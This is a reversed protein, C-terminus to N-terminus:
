KIVEFEFKVDSLVCSEPKSNNDFVLKVQANDTNKLAGKLTFTKTYSFHSGPSNQSDVIGEDLVCNTQWSANDNMNVLQISAWELPIDSKGSFTVKLKTGAPLTKTYGLIYPPIYYEFSSDTKNWYTRNIKLRDFSFSNKYGPKVKTIVENVNLSIIKGTIKFENITLREDCYNNDYYFGCWWKSTNKVTDKLVVRIKDNFPVGAKFGVGCLKRWSFDVSDKGDESFIRFAHVPVDKDPVGSIEFEIVSGKPIFKNKGFIQELLFLYEYNCSVGREDTRGWDMRKVIVYSNEWVGSEDKQISVPEPEPRPVPKPKPVFVSTESDDEDVKVVLMEGSKVTTSNKEKANRSATIDSVEVEGSLVEITAESAPKGEEGHKPLLILMDTKQVSSIEKTGVKVVTDDNASVKSLFLEGNIFDVSKENKNNFIQILSNERLQIKAGTDNFVAYVESDKATRIKDGDYVPSERSLKEWIDNGSIKRQATNRKFYIKAVAQENAKVTFSNLDRYYLYFMFLAGLSCFVFISWDIGNLSYTTSRKKTM